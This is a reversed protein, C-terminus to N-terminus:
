LLFPNFQTQADYYDIKDVRKLYNTAAKTLPFILVEVLIKLCFETIMINLLVAIPLMHLFAITNFIATDIFASFITSLIARIFFYRGHTLIKLKALIIANIFEGLLYSVISAIFIIPSFKFITNFADEHSWQESAPVFCLGYAALVVIMNAFIALWIVTRSAAFGYVETLIDSIVYTIPFLLVAASLHVDGFQSIKMGTINSVILISTFIIALMLYNKTIKMKM